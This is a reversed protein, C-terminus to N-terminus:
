AAVGLSECYQMPGTGDLTARIRDCSYWGISADVIDMFGVISVGRWSGVCFM